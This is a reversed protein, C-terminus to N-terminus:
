RKRAKRRISSSSSSGEGTDFFGNLSNLSYQDRNIAVGEAALGFLDAFLAALAAEAASEESAALRRIEATRSPATM